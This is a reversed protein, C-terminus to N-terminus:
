NQLPKAMRMIIKRPIINLKYDAYYILNNQECMIKFFIGRKGEKDLNTRYRICKAPNIRKIGDPIYIRLSSYVPLSDSENFERSIDTEKQNQPETLSKLLAFSSYAIAFLFRSIYDDESKILESFRKLQEKTLKLELNSGGIMVDKIPEDTRLLRTYDKKNSFIDQGNSNASIIRELPNSINEKIEIDLPNHSSLFSSFYVEIINADLLFSRALNVAYTFPLMGPVIALKGNEKMFEPNHLQNGDLTVRCFDSITLDDFVINTRM